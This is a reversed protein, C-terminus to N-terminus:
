LPLPTASQSQWNRWSKRRRILSVRPSQCCNRKTIPLSALLRAAGRLRKLVRRTRARIIPAATDLIGGVVVAAAAKPTQIAKARQANRTKTKPILSKIVATRPHNTVALTSRATMTDVVVVVAAVRNTTTGIITRTRARAKARATLRPHPPHACVQISAKWWRPRTQLQNSRVRPKWPM